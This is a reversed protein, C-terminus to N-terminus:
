GRGQRRHSAHGLCGVQPRRRRQGQVATDFFNAFKWCLIDFPPHNYRVEAVYCGHVVKGEEQSAAFLYLSRDKLASKPGSVTKIVESITKSVSNSYQVKLVLFMKGEDKFYETVADLVKKQEAKAAAKQEDLISKSISAMRDRFRNKTLASITLNNLDVQTRKADSEKQPGFKLRELADLRASFDNAIRQM